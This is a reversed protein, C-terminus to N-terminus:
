EIGKIKSRQLAGHFANLKEFDLAKIEPVLEIRNEPETTQQSPMMLHKLKRCPNLSDLHPAPGAHILAPVALGSSLHSESEATGSFNTSNSSDEDAQDQSSCGSLSGKEVEEDEEEQEMVYGDEFEANSLNLLNDISFDKCPVGSAGLCDELMVQQTSKMALEGLLSSKFARAKICYEIEVNPM